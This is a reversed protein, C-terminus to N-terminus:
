HALRKQRWHKFNMVCAGSVTALYERYLATAYIAVKENTIMPKCYCTAVSVKM